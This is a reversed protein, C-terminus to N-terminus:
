CNIQKKIYECIKDFEEKEYFGNNSVNLKESILKRDIVSSLLSTYYYSSYKNLDVEIFEEEISQKSDVIWKKYKVNKSHRRIASERNVFWTANFFDKITSHTCGNEDVSNSYWKSGKSDSYALLYCKIYLANDIMKVRDTQEYYHFHKISISLDQRKLGNINNM